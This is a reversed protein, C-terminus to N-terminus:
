YINHSFDSAKIWGSNIIWFTFVCFWYQTTLRECYTSMHLFFKNSRGHSMNSYKNTLINWGMNEDSEMLNTLYIEGRLGSMVKNNSEWWPTLIFRKKRGSMGVVDFLASHRKAPQTHAPGSIEVCSLLQSPVETTFYPM